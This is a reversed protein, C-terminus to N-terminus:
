QKPEWPFRLERVTNVNPNPYNINANMLIPKEIRWWTREGYQGFREAGFAFANVNGSAGQAFRASAIDFVEAAKAGNISFLNLSNLYRGGVTQELTTKGTFFPDTFFPDTRVNWCKM